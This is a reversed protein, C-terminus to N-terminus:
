LIEVRQYIGEPEPYKYVVTNFVQVSPKEPITHCCKQLKIFSSSETIDLIKTSLEKAPKM